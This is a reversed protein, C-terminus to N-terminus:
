VSTLLSSKTDFSAMVYSDSDPISVIENDFSFSDNITFGNTTLISLLAVFFIAINYGATGIASLIPTFPADRKHVKPLGYLISPKTGSAYMLNFEYSSIEKNNKLKSLIRYSCLQM